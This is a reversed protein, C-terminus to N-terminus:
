QLTFPEGLVVEFKWQGSASSKLIWQTHEGVVDDNPEMRRQFQFAIFDLRDHAAIRLGDNWRRQIRWKWHRQSVRRHKRRLLQRFHRNQQNNATQQKQGHHEETHRERVETQFVAVDAQDSVGLEHRGAGSRGDGLHGVVGDEWGHEFTQLNRPSVRTRTIGSALLEDHSCRHFMRVSQGAVIRRFRAAAGFHLFTVDTATRGDTGASPWRRFAGLQDVLRVQGIIVDIILTEGADVRVGVSREVDIDESQGHHDRPHVRAEIDGEV